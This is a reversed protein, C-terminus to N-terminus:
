WLCANPIQSPITNRRLYMATEHRRGTRNRQPRLSDEDYGRRQAKGRHGAGTASAGALVCICVARRRRRILGVGLLRLTLRLRQDVLALVKVLIILVLLRGLRKLLRNPELGIESLCM